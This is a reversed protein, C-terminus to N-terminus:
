SRILEVHIGLDNLDLELWNRDATLVKANLRRGLALCARDGLSLGRAKTRPRLAACAMADSLTFPEVTLTGPLVPAGRGLSSQIHPDAEAEAGPDIGTFLAALDPRADALRSFVEALNITSIVAGDAM